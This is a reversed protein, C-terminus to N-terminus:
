AISNALAAEGITMLPESAPMGETTPAAISDAEITAAINNTPADTMTADPVLESATEGDPITYAMAPDIKDEFAMDQEEIRAKKRPPEQGQAQPEGLMPDLEDAHRKLPNDREFDALIAELEDIRSKLPNERHYDAVMAELEQIRTNQEEIRPKLPNERQSEPLLAEVEDLRHKLLNERHHSENLNRELEDARRASDDARRSAEDAHQQFSNREQRAAAEDMELQSLRGRYLENIVELESVRTKLSSNSAMLQETTQPDSAQNNGNMPEGAGGADASILHGLNDPQFHSDGMNQFVNQAGYMSPTGTRSVPSHNDEPQGNMPRQSARRLAASAGHQQLMDMGNSDHVGSQPTQPQQQQAKKKAMDPRATKVRNRSKIVDTKLSHPRARNHLKLYLGCANCLVSGQEDRRWLPTRQTNCNACVPPSDGQGAGATASLSVPFNPTPTAQLPQPPGPMTSAAFQGAHAVVHQQQQLHTHSQQVQVHHTQPTMHQLNAVEPTQPSATAAPATAIMPTTTTANSYMPNEPAMNATPVVMPAPSMARTVQSTPQPPAPTSTAAMALSVMVASTDMMEETSPQAITSPSHNIHETTQEPQPEVSPTNSNNSEFNTSNTLAADAVTRQEEDVLAQQQEQPPTEDVSEQLPQETQQEPQAEPQQEEFQQPQQEEVQQAAQPESQLAEAATAQTEEGAPQQKIDIEEMTFWSSTSLEGSTTM